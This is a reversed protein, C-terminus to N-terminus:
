RLQSDCHRCVLTGRAQAPCATAQAIDPLRRPFPAHLGPQWFTPCCEYHVASCRQYKVAPSAWGPYLQAGGPSEYSAAPVVTAATTVGNSQRCIPYGNEHPEDVPLVKLRPREIQAAKPGVEPAQRHEPHDEDRDAGGAGEEWLLLQGSM